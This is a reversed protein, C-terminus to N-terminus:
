EQYRKMEAIFTERTGVIGNKEAEEVYALAATFNGESVAQKISNHYVEEVVATHTKETTAVIKEVKQQREIQNEVTSTRNLDFTIAISGVASHTLELNTNHAINAEIDGAQLAMDSPEEIPTTNNMDQTTTFVVIYAPRSGDTYRRPLEIEGVYGAQNLLERSQYVLQESELTDIAKFQDNLIILSPVFVSRQSPNSEITVQIPTTSYPLEIGEVFSKGTSFQAVPSMSNIKLQLENDEPLSQYNIDALPTCCNTQFTADLQEGSLANHQTNSCGALLTIAVALISKKM